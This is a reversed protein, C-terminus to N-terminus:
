YLKTCENVDNSGADPIIILKYQNQIKDIQDNLGHQKGEHLIYSVSNDVWVPFLDYL